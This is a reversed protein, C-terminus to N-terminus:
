QSRKLLGLDPRPPLYATLFYRKIKEAVIRNGLANLHGDYRYYIADTDGQKKLEGYVDFNEIKARDLFEYVRRLGKGREYEYQGKADVVHREWDADDLVPQGPICYALLDVGYAKCEDRLALIYRELYAMGEELEPYWDALNVELYFPRNENPKLRPGDYEPFLRFRSLVERLWYRNGTRRTIERYSRSHRFVWSQIRYPLTARRRSWMVFDAWLPDYARLFKGAEELSNDIDNAPLMQLVVLDPEFRLGRERLLGLYQWPGAGTMGANIVSVKKALPEGALAQELLKPISADLVVSHGVTFSDGLMLIRFEEGPNKPGYYRDRIGQSSISINVPMREDNGMRVERVGRGGPQYLFLYDDRHDYLDLSILEGPLAWRAGWELLVVSASISAILLLLNPFVSTARKPPRAAKRSFAQGLLLFIAAWCANAADSHGRFFLLGIFLIGLGMCLAWAAKAFMRSRGSDQPIRKLVAAFNKRRWFLFVVIAQLLLLVNVPDISPFRSLLPTNLVLVAISAFLSVKVLRPSGLAMVIASLWCFLSPAELFYYINPLTVIALVKIVHPM